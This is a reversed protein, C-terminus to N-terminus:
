CLHQRRRDEVAPAKSPLPPRSSPPPAKRAACRACLARRASRPNTRWEGHAEAAKEEEVLKAALDHMKSALPGGAEDEPPFLSDEVDGDQLSHQAGQSQGDLIHALRRRSVTWEAVKTQTLM